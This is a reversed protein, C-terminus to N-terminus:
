AGDGAYQVQHAESKPAYGNGNEVDHPAVGEVGSHDRRRHFMGGNSAPAGPAPAFYVGDVAIEPEEALYM